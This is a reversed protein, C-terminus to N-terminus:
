DPKAPNVLVLHSSNPILELAAEFRDALESPCGNCFPSRQLLVLREGTAFPPTRAEELAQIAQGTEAGDLRSLNLSSWSPDVHSEILGDIARDRAAADDGWILHIPM